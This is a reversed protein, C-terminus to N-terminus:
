KNRLEQRYAYIAAGVAGFHQSLPSTEINVELKKELAKRVADNHAVGGSM